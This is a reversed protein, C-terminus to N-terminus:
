NRLSHRRGDEVLALARAINVGALHMKKREASLNSTLLLLFNCFNDFTIFDLWIAQNNYNCQDVTFFYETIIGRTTL